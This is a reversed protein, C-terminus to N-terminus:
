RHSKREIEEDTGYMTDVVCKMFAIAKDSGLGRNVVDMATQVPEKIGLRARCLAIAGQGLDGSMDEKAQKAAKEMDQRLWAPMGEYPDIPPYAWRYLLVAAVVVGVVIILKKM